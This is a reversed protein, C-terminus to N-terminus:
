QEKLGVAYGCGYLKYIDNEWYNGIAMEIFYTKEWDKHTIKLLNSSSGDIAGRANGTKKIRFIENHWITSDHVREGFTVEYVIRPTTDNGEKPKFENVKKINFMFNRNSGFVHPTGIKYQENDFNMKFPELECDLTLAGLKLQSKAIDWGDSNKSLSLKGEPNFNQLTGLFVEDNVESNIYSISYTGEADAYIKLKPNIKKLSEVVTEESLNSTKKIGVILAVVLFAILLTIYAFKGYIRSYLEWKSTQTLQQLYQKAAEPDEKVINQIRNFVEDQRKASDKSANSLRDFNTNSDM